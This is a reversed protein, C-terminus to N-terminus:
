EEEDEYEKKEDNEKKKRKMVRRRRVTCLFITITTVIKSQVAKFGYKRTGLSYKTWKSGFSQEPHRSLACSPTIRFPCFGM